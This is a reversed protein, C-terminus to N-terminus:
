GRDICVGAELNEPTKTKVTIKKEGCLDVNEGWEQKLLNTLM